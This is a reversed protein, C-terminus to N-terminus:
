RCQYCRGTIELQSDSASFGISQLEEFLSKVTDNIDKVETVQNCSSCILFMPLSHFADDVIQSCAMFKNESKLRHVLHVSELFDLIRYVSMALIPTDMKKNFLDTLEYASLPKNAGLLIELVHQRKETFKKGERECKKSAFRIIKKLQQQNM